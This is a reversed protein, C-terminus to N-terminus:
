LDSCVMDKGHNKAQYLLSDVRNITDTVPEGPRHKTVGVSITLPYEKKIIEKIANRLKEAGTKVQETSYNETIIMFEEGGWRGCEIDYKSIGLENICRALEKLAEDGESHGYHDNIQKFNDIDFMVLHWENSSANDKNEAHEFIVREIAGRNLLGTLSDHSAEYLMDNLQDNKEMLEETITNIFVALRAAIPMNSFRNVKKVHGNKSQQSCGEKMAVTVMSLNNLVTEGKHRLIEGLASFGTTELNESLEAVEIDKQDNWFLKRGMCNFVFVVEPNFSQINTSTQKTHNLMRLPDGYTLKIKSGLPVNTSMVISGDPNVSKAHRIYFTEEDIRVEWPFELANYFFYSDKKINLYHEYVEFAPKNDLEYVINGESRTVTFPYGIAKWGFMRNTQLVLSNGSYFVLTAVSEDYDSNNVFVFPKREDDGVAVAGFVEVNDPLKDLANVIIDFSEGSTATIIEIGRLDPINKAFDLIDNESIANNGCLPLVDINSTPDDFVILTVVLADDYLQGDLIEGTASCGIIPINPAKKTLIEKVADLKTFIASDDYSAYVHFVASSGVEINNSIWNEITSEFDTNFSAQLLKM